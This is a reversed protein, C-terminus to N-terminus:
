LDLDFLHPFSDIQATKLLLTLPEAQTLKPAALTMDPVIPLKGIKKVCHWLDCSVNPPRTPHNGVTPLNCIHNAFQWSICNWTRLSIRATILDHINGVIRVTLYSM